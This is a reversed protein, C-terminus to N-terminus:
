PLVFGIKWEFNSLNPLNLPSIYILSSEWHLEWPGIAGLAGYGRWRPHWKSVDFCNLSFCLTVGNPERSAKTKSNGTGQFTAKPTVLKKFVAPPKPKKRPPAKRGPPIRGCQPCREQYCAMEGMEILLCNMCDRMGQSSSCCLFQSFM